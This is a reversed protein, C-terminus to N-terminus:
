FKDKWRIYDAESGAVKGTRKDIMMDSDIAIDKQLENWAHFEM